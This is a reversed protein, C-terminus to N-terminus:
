NLYFLITLLCENAEGFITKHVLLMAGFLKYCNYLFYLDSEAANWQLCHWSIM